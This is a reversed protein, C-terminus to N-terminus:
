ERTGNEVYEPEINRPTIFISAAIESTSGFIIGRTWCGRCINEDCQYGDEEGDVESNVNKLLKMM